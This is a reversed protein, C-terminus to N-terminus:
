FAGVGWGHLPFVVKSVQFVVKPCDGEAVTESACQKLDRSKRSLICPDETVTESACPCTSGLRPQQQIGSAASDDIWSPRHIQAAEDDPRARLGSVGTEM